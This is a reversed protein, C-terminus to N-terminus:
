FFTPLVSIWNLYTPGPLPVENAPLVTGSGDVIANTPIKADSESAERRTRDPFAAAVHRTTLL